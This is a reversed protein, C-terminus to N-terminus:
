KYDKLLEEPTLGFVKCMNMIDRLRLNGLDKKLKWTSLRQGASEETLRPFILHGLQANNIVNEEKFKEVARNIINM